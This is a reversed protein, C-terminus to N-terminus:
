LARRGAVDFARTHVCYGTCVTVMVMTPGDVRRYEHMAVRTVEPRSRVCFSSLSPEECTQKLLEFIFARFAWLGAVPITWVEDVYPGTM